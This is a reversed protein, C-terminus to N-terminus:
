FAQVKSNLCYIQDSHRDLIKEDKDVRREFSDFKETHSTVVDLLAQIKEGHEHEIKAVTQSLVRLEKNTEEQGKFLKKQGEKLGQCIKDTKEQRKLIDEQGKKLDFLLKDREDQRKTIDEQGKKLDFLLKDGEEQGKKLSLLLNDREVDTM